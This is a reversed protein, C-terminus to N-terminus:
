DARQRDAPTRESGVCHHCTFLGRPDYERKIALLRAYNEGWFSQQWDPEFYDAENVYAGAGPALDRIIDMASAVADRQTTAEAEDPELGPVGPHGRGSAGAIVLAAADTVRPNMSTERTRSLADPAAGSLGKNFHLSVSWHRSADFLAGALTSARAPEFLAFPLWRSKYAYWYTAVEGRNSAWWFMNGPQGPRLDRVINDPAAAQLFEYDWMGAAPVAQFNTTVEYSDPQEELWGLFPRWSAEAEGASMGQFSLALELTDNGHVAVQEGWRENHLTERYFDLFRSLLQEFAQDNAARIEGFVFGFLDPLPHTMLTAKTVIGFTGGGGGRLAWFLDQNQCANAIRVKGDATVVEAELMSAAATGFKKSWSGFGGGQLFGGVAGVSTCGGGQVYRGHEVTVARYAELWRTGAGLTVAPIGAEAECGSAVFADHLTIDRMAHTWVLLSDPATSRGLYDHGTGKVVLRIQRERAFNVAAAVDHADRAAVAYASTAPEWAEFWGLSQTAGAHDQLAYPNEHERMAAACAESDKDRVCPEAPSSVRELTGTLRSRLQRWEAQTPWCPQGPKCLEQSSPLPDENKGCASCCGYALMWVGSLRVMWLRM